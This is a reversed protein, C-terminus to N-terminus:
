LTSDVTPNKSPKIDNITLRIQNADKTGVQHLTDDLLTTMVKAAKAVISLIAEPLVNLLAPFQPFTTLYCVVVVLEM